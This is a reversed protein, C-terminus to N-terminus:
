SGRRQEQNVPAAGAAAVPSRYVPLWPTRLSVGPLRNHVDCQGFSTVRYETPRSWRGPRVEIWPSDVRAMRRLASAIQQTSCEFGLLVLRGRITDAVVWGERGDDYRGPMAAITIALESPRGRLLTM